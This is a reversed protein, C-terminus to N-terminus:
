SPATASFLKSGLDIGKQRFFDLWQPEQKEKLWTKDINDKVTDFTAIIMQKIRDTGIDKFISFDFSQPSRLPRPAFNEPCYGLMFWLSCLNDSNEEYFLESAKKSDKNNSEWLKVFKKQYQYQTAIENLKSILIQENIPYEILYKQHGAGQRFTFINNTQYQTFLRASSFIINETIPSYNNHTYNISAQKFGRSSLEREIRKIDDNKGKRKAEELEIELNKVIMSNILCYLMANCFLIQTYEDDLNSDKLGECYENFCHIIKKIERLNTTKYQEIATKASRGGLLENIDNIELDQSYIKYPKLLGKVLDLQEFSTPQYMLTKDIIKERYKKYKELRKYEQEEGIKSQNCLLIIHCGKNEKLESILGLVDQISIKDSLREFDDICIITNRMHEKKFMKFLFDVNINKGLLSLTGNIINKISDAKQNEITLFQAILDQIIENEDKKGFVSTYIPTVGLEQRIKHELFSRYMYSKGVGWEGDIAIAVASENTASYRKLLEVVEQILLDRNIKFM